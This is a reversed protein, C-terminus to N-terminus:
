AIEESEEFPQLDCLRIFHPRGLADVWQEVLLKVRQSNDEVPYRFRHPIRLEVWEGPSSATQQGWMIHEHNKKTLSALQSSYDELADGVWPGQGLFVIRYIPGDRSPIARWRLEGDPAFLRGSISRQLADGVTIRHPDRAAGCWHFDGATGPWWDFAWGDPAEIWCRLPGSEDDRTVAGLLESLGDRTHDGACLMATM